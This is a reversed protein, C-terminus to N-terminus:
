YDKDYNNYLELQKLAKTIVGNLEVQLSMFGDIGHDIYTQELTGVIKINYFELIKKRVYHGYERLPYQPNREHASAKQKMKKGKSTSTPASQMNSSMPIEMPIAVVNNWDSADLDHYGPCKTGSSNRNGVM